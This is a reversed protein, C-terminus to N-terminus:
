NNSVVLTPSPALYQGETEVDEDLKAHKLEMGRKMKAMYFGDCDNESPRLVKEEM